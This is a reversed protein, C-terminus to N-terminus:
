KVVSQELSVTASGTSTANTRGDTTYPHAAEMSGALTLQAKGSQLHRSIRVMAAAVQHRVLAQTESPLQMFEVLDDQIPHHGRLLLQEVVWDGLDRRNLNAQAHHRPMSLEKGPLPVIAQSQAPIPSPTRDRPTM